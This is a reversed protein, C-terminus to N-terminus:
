CNTLWVSFGLMTDCLEWRGELCNWAIWNHKIHDVVHNLEWSGQSGFSSLFSPGESCIRPNFFLNQNTPRKSKNTMFMKRSPERMISSSPPHFIKPMGRKDRGQPIRIVKQPCSYETEFYIMTVILM